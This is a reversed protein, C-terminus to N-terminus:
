RASTLNERNKERRLTMGFKDKYEKLLETQKNNYEKIKAQAKAKEKEDLAVAERRKWARLQREHYRQRQTYAYQEPTGGNEPPTLDTLGEIYGTIVHRCNPHFLGASRAKSLAPYKLSTGSISLVKNEWPRCVPCEGAHDSVVVLDRGHETQRDIQGQLSANASISRTAMEVYSTMDWRRGARDVFGTIGEDAFRNLMRQATVKRQELEAVLGTSIERQIARYIDETERLIRVNSRDIIGDIELLYRQLGYPINTNPLM